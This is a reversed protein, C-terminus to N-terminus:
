KQYKEIIAAKKLSKESQYAFRVQDVLSTDEGTRKLEAELESLLREMKADCEGELAYGKSIYQAMLEKKTGKKARYDALAQSVLGDIKGVYGSRLVYIRAIIDEVRSPEVTTPPTTAAPNEKVQEWTTRGTVIDVAVEESLEGKELLEVAEEPLASFDVGEYKQSLDEMVQETKQELELKQEKTYLFAYRLANINNWQWWVLLSLLLLIVALISLFVITKRKM